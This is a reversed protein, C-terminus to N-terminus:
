YWYNLKIDERKTAELRSGVEVVEVPVSLLRLPAASLEVTEEVPVSLKDWVEENSVVSPEEVAELVEAEEVDEGVFTVM